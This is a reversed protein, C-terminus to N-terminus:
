PTDAEHIVMTVLIAAGLQLWVALGHIPKLGAATGHKYFWTSVLWM